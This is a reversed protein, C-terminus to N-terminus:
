PTGHTLVGLHHGESGNRPVYGCHVCRTGADHVLKACGTRARGRKVHLFAATLMGLPPAVFYIWLDMWQGAVAASAFSRAPNMSMGSYPAELAIFTAVLAGAALGTYRAFRPRSSLTLVVLMLVCSILWEMAFAVRPGRAPQTLVFAVPPAAFRGGLLALVLAVGAVGGVFQAGIYGLADARRVKGLALFTLTVAPNMHAGSRRGWPSYILAIATLGMAIGILVRRLDGNPILERIGFDPLEILATALGASVMFTGLAWAEIAYEPWHPRMSGRAIVDTSHV